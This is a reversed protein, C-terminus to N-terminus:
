QPPAVTARVFVEAARYSSRVLPGAAVFKFGLEKAKASWLDFKEPEVYRDVALHKSSPRLYQGLTVIDVGVRRLDQLSQEIEEDTEGAGVMLSSKTLRDPAHTRAYELVALSQEYTCRVDRVLRTVTATRRRTATRGNGGSRRRAERPLNEHFRGGRGNM